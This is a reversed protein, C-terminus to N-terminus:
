KKLLLDYCKMAINYLKSKKFVFRGTNDFATGFRKKFDRPGFKKNPNGGGGFDFCDLGKDLGLKLMEWILLDGAHEHLHEQLTATYFATIKKKYVFVLQAATPIHGSYAIFIKFNSNCKELLNKFYDKSKLSHRKRKYLKQLLGYAIDLGEPTTMEKIKINYKDVAQRIGKRKDKKMNKKLTEEDTLPINAGLHDRFHFGNAEYVTREQEDLATSPRVQLFLGKGKERMHKLLLALVGSDGNYIPESYYITRRTLGFLDIYEHSIEGLALGAIGEDGGVATLCPQMKKSGAYVDFMGPTHFVSGKPHKYVFESWQARDLDKLIRYPKM